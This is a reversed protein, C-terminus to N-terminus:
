YLGSIYVNWNHTSCMQKVKIPHLSINSASSWPRTWIHLLLQCRWASSKDLDNKFVASEVIRPQLWSFQKGKKWKLLLTLCSSQFLFSPSQSKMNQTITQPCAYICCEEFHVKGWLNWALNFNHIHMWPKQLTVMSNLLTPASDSFTCYLRCETCTTRACVKYNTYYQIIHKQTGVVWEWSKQLWAPLRDLTTNSYNIVHKQVGTDINCLLILDYSMNCTPTFSAISSKNTIGVM